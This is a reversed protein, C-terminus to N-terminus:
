FLIILLSIIKPHWHLFSTITPWKSHELHSISNEAQLLSINHSFPLRWIVWIYTFLTFMAEESPLNQFASLHPQPVLPSYISSQNCHLSIWHCPSVLSVSFSVLYHFWTLFLCILYNTFIQTSTFKFLSNTCNIKNFLHGISPSLNLVCVHM